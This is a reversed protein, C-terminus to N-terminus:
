FDLTEVEIAEDTLDEIERDSYGSLAEEDWGLTQEAASADTNRWDRVPQGDAKARAQQERHYRARRDSLPESEGVLLQEVAYYGIAISIVCDDFGGRNAEADALHGTPSYFDALDTFTFPSHIILDPLKTVPDIRSVASAFRSLLIPRTQATTTWGIATSFRKNLAAKDVYQWRYFNGYGYHKQLLDQTSKGHGNVEIAAQAELGDHDKYLHGIADIIPALDEPTTSDSVWHAVQECSEGLTPVRLVDISSRDRGCGDSIDASVVYRYDRAKPATRPSEFVLLLDMLGSLGTGHAQFEDVTLRRMGYGRPLTFSDAPM